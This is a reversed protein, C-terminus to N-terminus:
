DLLPGQGRQAVIWSNSNDVVWSCNVTPLYCSSSISEDYHFKFNPMFAINRATMAGYFEGNPMVRVSKNGQVAPAHLVGQWSSNPQIRVESGPSYAQFTGSSTRWRGGVLLNFHPTKNTTVNVTSNPGLYFRDLVYMEVRGNIILDTRNNTSFENAIYIKTPPKSTSTPGNLVIDTNAGDVWSEEIYLTAGSGVKVTASTTGGGGGGGGGKGKGKGGGRGGGGGGGGGGASTIASQGSGNDGLTVTENKPIVATAGQKVTLQRYNNTINVTGTSITKSGTPNLFSRDLTWISNTQGNTLPRVEGHVTGQINPTGQYEADGYVDTNPKVTLDGEAGINGDDSKNAGGYPGISSDYSDILGNPFTTLDGESYIGFKDATTQIANTMMRKEITYNGYSAEIIMTFKRSNSATYGRVEKAEDVTGDGDDDLGEAGIQGKGSSSKVWERVQVWFIGGKYNGQGDVPDDDQDVLDNDSPQDVLSGDRNNDIGDHRPHGRLGAGAVELPAHSDDGSHIVFKDGTKSMSGAKKNNILWDNNMKSIGLTVASDAVYDAQVERRDQRFQTINNQSRSLLVLSMGAVAIIVIATALLVTGKERSRM